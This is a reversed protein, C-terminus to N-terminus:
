LVLRTPFCEHHRKLGECADLTSKTSGHHPTPPPVPRPSPFPSGIGGTFLRADLDLHHNATHLAAHRTCDFLSPIRKGATARPSPRTQSWRGGLCRFYVASPRTLLGSVPPWLTDKVKGQSASSLVLTLAHMLGLCSANLSIDGLIEMHRRTHRRDRPVDSWLRTPSRRIM